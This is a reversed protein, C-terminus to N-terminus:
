DTLLSDKREILKLLFENIVLLNKSTKKRTKIELQVRKLSELWIYIKQNIILFTEIPFIIKGFMDYNSMWKIKNM